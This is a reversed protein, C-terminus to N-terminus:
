KMKMVHTLMNEVYANNHPIYSANWYTSAYNHSDPVKNGSVLDLDKLADKTVLDHEQVYFESYTEVLIDHKKRTKFEWKQYDSQSMLGSWSFSDNILKSYVTYIDKTVQVSYLGFLSISIKDRPAVWNISMLRHHLSDTKMVGALVGKIMIGGDKTQQYKKSSLIDSEVRPTGMVIKPIEPKGLDLDAMLPISKEDQFSRDEFSRYEIIRHKVKGKKVPIYYEVIGDVFYKLTSDKKESNVEYSRFYGKLRIYDPHTAKVEIDSLNYHIPTLLIEKPLEKASGEYTQYAIHQISIAADSDAPLKVYGATDSYCVLKGKNMVTAYAIPTRTDEDLLRVQANAVQSLCLLIFLLRITKM